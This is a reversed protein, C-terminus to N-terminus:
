RAASSPNAGLSLSMPLTHKPLVAAIGRAAINEALRTLDAVSESDDSCESAVKRDAHGLDMAQQHALDNHLSVLNVARTRGDADRYPANMPDAGSAKAAASKAALDKLLPNYVRLVASRAALRAEDCKDLSGAQAPGFAPALLALATCVGLTWSSVPM